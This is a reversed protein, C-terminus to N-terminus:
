SFARKFATVNMLFYGIVGLAVIVLLAILYEETSKGAKVTAHYVKQAPKILYSQEVNNASTIAGEATSVGSNYFSKVAQSLYGM